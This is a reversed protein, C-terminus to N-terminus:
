PSPRPAAAARTFPEAPFAADLALQTRWEAAKAPEGQAEYLDALREGAQPMRMRAFMPISTERAKLGEYGAVILPAAEAIRGQGLLSGGLLSRANSTLWFDPQVRERIALCERAVAEAESYEARLILNHARSALANGLQLLPTAETEGRGPM